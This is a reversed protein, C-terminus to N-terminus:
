KAASFFSWVALVQMVGGTLALGAFWWILSARHSIWFFALGGPLGAVATMLEGAALFILLTLHRDTSAKGADNAMLGGMMSMFAWVAASAFWLVIFLVGAIVLTTSGTASESLSTNM